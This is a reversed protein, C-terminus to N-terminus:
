RVLVLKRSEAQRGAVFKLFYIGSSVERGSANRGDWYVRHDGAPYEKETLTRVRRGAADQVAIKVHQLYNVSFSITTHPNFPNPCVRLNDVSSHPGDLEVSETRLFDWGGDDGRSFLTYIVTGGARLSPDNDVAKFSRFGASIIGVRRKRGNMDAMLRFEAATADEHVAWTVVVSDGVTVSNFGTLFVPVMSSNAPQWDPDIAQGSTVTLRTQGTGDANMVYIEYHGDRMSIFAIKAGDSSWNPDEDDVSNDTLRVPNSGDADM